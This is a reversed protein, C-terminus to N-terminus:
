TKFQTKITDQKVLNKSREMSFKLEPISEKSPGMGLIQLHLYPVQSTRSVASKSVSEVPSMVQFFGTVCFYYLNTRTVDCDVCTKSSGTQLM